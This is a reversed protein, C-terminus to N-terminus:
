IPECISGGQIPNCSHTDAPCDAESECPVACAQTSNNNQDTLTLACQGPTSGLSPCTEGGDCSPICMGTQAGQASVVCSSGRVCDGIGQGCSHYHDRDGVPPEYCMGMPNGDADVQANGSQDALGICIEEGICADECLGPNCSAGCVGSTAGEELAVCEGGDCPTTANCEGGANAPRDAPVCVFGDDIDQNNQDGGGVDDVRVDDLDGATGGGGDGGGGRVDDGRGQGRVDDGRGPGRDGFLNEADDDDCAMFVTASLTLASLIILPRTFRRFMM